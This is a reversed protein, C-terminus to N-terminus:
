AFVGYLFQKSLQRCTDANLQEMAETKIHHLMYTDMLGLLSFTMWQEKGQLNTHHAAVAKFFDQVNASIKDYFPKVIRYSESGNPSQYLQKYLLFFTENSKAFSVYEIVLRDIAGIVDGNYNLTEEFVLTLASGYQDIISRLLGEKNGFHHYLTPKTVGAESVIRAVGTNEYGEETFLHLSKELITEKATM